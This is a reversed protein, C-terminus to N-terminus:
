CTSTVVDIIPRTNPATSQNYRIFCQTRLSGVDDDDAGHWYLWANISQSRRSNWEHDDARDGADIELSAQIGGTRASPYGYVVDITEGNVTIQAASSGEVGQIVSKVYVLTAASNITGELSEMSAIIAESRFDVFKPAASVALIGLIVIVIILEILTFGDSKKLHM